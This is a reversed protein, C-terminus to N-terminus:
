SRTLKGRSSRDKKSRVGRAVAHPVILKELKEQELKRSFGPPRDLREAKTNKARQLQNLAKMRRLNKRGPFNSPKM